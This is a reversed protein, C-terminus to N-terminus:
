RTTVGPPVAPAGATLVREILAEYIARSAEPAVGHTVIGELTFAVITVDAERTIPDLPAPLQAEFLQEVASHFWAHWEAVHPSQSAREHITSVLAKFPRLRDVMWAMQEVLPLHMVAPYDALAAQVYSDATAVLLADKDEFYWYITNPAVGAAQAIKGISTKEYGHELFLAAAAEVLASQKEDRPQPRRNKAMGPEHEWPGRRGDM